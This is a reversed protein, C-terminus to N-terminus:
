EDEDVIYMAEEDEEELEEWEKESIFPRKKQKYPKPRHSAPPVPKQNEQIVSGKDKIFIIFFLGVILSLSGAFLGLYLIWIEKTNTYRIIAYPFCICAWVILVIGVVLRLIRPLKMDKKMIGYDFFVSNYSWSREDRFNFLRPNGKSNRFTEDIKERSRM